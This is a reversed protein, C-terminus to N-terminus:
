RKARGLHKFLREIGLIIVLSILLIEVWLVWEKPEHFCVIGYHLVMLTIFLLVLWGFVLFGDAWCDKLKEWM